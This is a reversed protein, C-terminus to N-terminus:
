KYKKKIINVKTNSNNLIHSAPYEGSFIFIIVIPTARNVINLYAANSIKKTHLLMFYKYINFGKNKVFKRVTGIKAKINVQINM